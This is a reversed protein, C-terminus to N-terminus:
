IHSGRTSRVLAVEFGSELELAHPKMESLWRPSQYFAEIQRSREDDDRYGRLYVFVDPDEVDVFSGLIRMGHREMEPVVTSEFWDVFEDRRGPHLRYRRVEVLMSGGRGTKLM